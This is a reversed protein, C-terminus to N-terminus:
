ESLSMQGKIEMPRHHPANAIGTVTGDEAVDGNIEVCLVGFPLKPAAAAHVHDGDRTADTLDVTFGLLKARGSVATESDIHLSVETKVWGMPSKIQIDGRYDNGIIFM